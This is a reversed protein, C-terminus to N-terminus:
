LWHSEMALKQIMHVAMDTIVKASVKERADHLDVELAHEAFAEHVHLVLERQEVPDTRRSATTRTEASINMQATSTGRAALTSVARM